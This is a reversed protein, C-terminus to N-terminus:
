PFSRYDARQRAAPRSLSRQRLTLRLVQQRPRHRPQQLLRRQRNAEALCATLSAITMGMALVMALTKKM